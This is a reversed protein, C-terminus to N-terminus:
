KQRPKESITTKSVGPLLLRGRSLGYLGRAAAGFLATAARAGARSPVTSQGPFTRIAGFGAAALMRRLVDPPFDYLHFPPDYLASGLGIPALLWAIPTTHPVRVLLTGGPALLRFAKRLAEMPDPLHELVYFMTVADFAGEPLHAEEITGRRVPIGRNAAVTVAAASPDLGEAAWGRARMLAVFGGFGCGVDLLRGPAGGKRSGALLGASERFVREMLRNWSAEDEGGRAHYAAYLAPLQEPFPRPNVYVLGCARCRVIRYGRHRAAPLADDGGCANCRVHRRADKGIM